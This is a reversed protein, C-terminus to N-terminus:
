FVFLPQKVLHLAAEVLALGVDHLRPRRLVTPQVVTRQDEADHDHHNADAHQHTPDGRM